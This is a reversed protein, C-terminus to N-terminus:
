AADRRALHAYSWGFGVVALWAFTVSFCQSAFHLHPFSYSPNAVHGSAIIEQTRLYSLMTEVGLWAPAIWGVSVLAVLGHIFKRKIMMLPSVASNLRATPTPKFSNNPTLRHSRRMSHSKRVANVQM